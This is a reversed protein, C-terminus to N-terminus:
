RRRARSEAGTVVVTEGAAIRLQRADEVSARLLRRLSIVELVLRQVDGHSAARPTKWWNRLDVLSPSGFEPLPQEKELGGLGKPPYGVPSGSGLLNRDRRSEEIRITGDKGFAPWHEAEWDTMWFHTEVPRDGYFDWYQWRYEFVPEM